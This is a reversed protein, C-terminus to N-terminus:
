VISHVAYIGRNLVKAAVAQIAVVNDTFLTFRAPVYALCVACFNDIPSCMKNHGKSHTAM